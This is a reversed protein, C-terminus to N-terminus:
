ALRFTGLREMLEVEFKNYEFEVVETAGVYEDSPVTVDLMRELDWKLRAPDDRRLRKVKRMAAAGEYVKPPLVVGFSTAAGNLAENSERFLAFPYPSYDVGYVESLRTVGPADLTGEFFSELEEINEAYGANLLIVVKHNEAWDWFMESQETLVSPDRYKVAMDGIVHGAQIGHQIQSIYLNGFFYARM